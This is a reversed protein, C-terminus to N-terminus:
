RRVTRHWLGCSLSSFRWQRSFSLDRM